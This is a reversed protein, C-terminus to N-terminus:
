GFMVACVAMCVPQHLLYIWISRRGIASLLPIRKQAAEKWLDRKEFIGYFFYGALFLLMWPLMPFYDSSTFGPYPFGFPTLVKIRYLWDPLALLVKGGVGLYGQQVNKFIVFGTFSVIMGIIQPYKQMWKHFPIMFLVACGMFNLIGFWVAETPLFMKTILSISLGCINFFMGRWFNGKWGLRWVFGALFIFIWCISQQWIHICPLGYWVPNKGYVIYVDYLFHFAVMNVVALGRIGDVLLYRKGCYGKGSM